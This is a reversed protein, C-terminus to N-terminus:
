ITETKFEELNIDMYFNVIGFSNLLIEYYDFIECEDNPDYQLDKTSM